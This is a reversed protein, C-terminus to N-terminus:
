TSDHKDKGPTVVRRRLLLESGDDFLVTIADDCSSITCCPQGGYRKYLFETLLNLIEADLAKAGCTEAPM